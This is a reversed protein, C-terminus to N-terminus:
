GARSGFREAHWDQVPLRIVTVTGAHTRAANRARVHALRIEADQRWALGQLRAPSLLDGDPGVLDRGALRWGAWPGHLRVHNRTIQDRVQAACPNPCPTAAPWCPPRFGSETLDM